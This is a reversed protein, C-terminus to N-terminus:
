VPQNTLELKSKQKTKGLVTVVFLAHGCGGCWDSMKIHNRLNLSSDLVKDLSSGDSGM